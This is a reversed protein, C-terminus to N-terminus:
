RADVEPALEFLEAWETREATRGMAQRLEALAAARAEGELLRARYAGQGSRTRLRCSPDAVLNAAWAREAGGAAILYRGGSRPVVGVPTTRAQGSVRGTTTLMGARGLRFLFWGGLANLKITIPNM